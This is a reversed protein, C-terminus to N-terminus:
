NTTTRISCLTIVVWLVTMKGITKSQLNENILQSFIAESALMGSKMATHTGKIKPVNLLGPSCGILLGGPFTLKPISQSFVFLFTTTQNKNTLTFIVNQFNFQCLTQTDKGNESKAYASESCVGTVGSVWPIQIYCAYLFVSVTSTSLVLTVVNEKYGRELQTIQLLAGATDGVSIIKRRWGWTFKKFHVWVGTQKASKWVTLQVQRM